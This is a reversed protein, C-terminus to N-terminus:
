ASSSGSSKESNRHAVATAYAAGAISSTCCRWRVPLRATETEDAPTGDHADHARCDDDHADGVPRRRLDVVREVADGHRVDALTELNFALDQASPLSTRSGEGPLPARHM